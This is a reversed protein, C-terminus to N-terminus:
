APLEDETAAPQQSSGARWAITLLFAGDDRAHVAHPIGAAISLLSGAALDHPAGAVDVTLEGRLAQITITGPATHEALSAGRLLTVLVVRLDDTKVLTEARRGSVADGPQFREIEEALSHPGYITPTV